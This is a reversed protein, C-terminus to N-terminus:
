FAKEVTNEQKGGTSCASEITYKTLATSILLHDAKM